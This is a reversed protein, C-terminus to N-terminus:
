NAGSPTKKAEKKDIWLFWLFVGVVTLTTNGPNLRILLCKYLEQFIYLAFYTSHLQCVHLKFRIEWSQIQLSKLTAAVHTFPSYLVALIEEGTPSFVRDFFM